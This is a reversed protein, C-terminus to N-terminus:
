VEAVTNGPTKNSQSQLKFLFNYPFSM